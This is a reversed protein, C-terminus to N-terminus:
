AAPASILNLSFRTAAGRRALALDAPTVRGDRDFDVRSIVTVDTSYLARRVALVDAADVTAPAGAGGADGVRNGFYFVDAKALGTEPNAKVTVQLWKNVIAGDPWTVSVRASGNDGAGWRM